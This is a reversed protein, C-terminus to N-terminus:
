HTPRPPYSERPYRHGRSVDRSKGYTAYYPSFTVLVVVVVVVVVVVQLLASWSSNIPLDLPTLNGLTAIVEVLMEQSETHLM